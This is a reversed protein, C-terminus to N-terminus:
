EKLSIKIEANLTEGAQIIEPDDVLGGKDRMVPEVCIFDKDPLSWVWIRKFEKPVELILTGLQPIFIEMPVNPNNITVAKGNAWKEINDQAFNGGIFSFKIYRKLDNPVRFYPHLGSSVPMNEKGLNQVSQNISFSGNENFQGGISLLFDFPFERRTDNNSKLTQVFGNKEKTAQWKMNRAFGHQKLNPFEPSELPGANPFLVPVGGKVNVSTDRFTAEDLYLIEKGHLKISTIIGGREPCFSVESGDPTKVTEIKLPQPGELPSSGGIM